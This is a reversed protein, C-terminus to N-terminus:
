ETHPSDKPNDHFEQSVIQVSSTVLSTGNNGYWEIKEEKLSEKFDSIM